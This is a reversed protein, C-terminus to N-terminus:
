ELIIDRFSKGGPIMPLVHDQYGTHCDLLFPGTTELMEAIANELEEPHFVDRGPIDYSRAINVFDPFPRACKGRLDTNGRKGRYFMDEIQAVM